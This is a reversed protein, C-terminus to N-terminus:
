GPERRLDLRAHPVARKVLAAEVLRVAPKDLGPLSVAAPRDFSGRGWEPRETVVGYRDGRHCEGAHGRQLAEGFLTGFPLAPRDCGGLLQFEWGSREAFSKDKDVQCPDSHHRALPVLGTPKPLLGDLDGFAAMEFVEPQEPVLVEQDGFGVAGKLHFLELRVGERHIQHTM